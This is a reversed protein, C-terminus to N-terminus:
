GRKKSGVNDQAYGGAIIGIVFMSLMISSTLSAAGVDWNLYEAVPARFISWGYIIGACFQIVMGASLIFYRNKTKM